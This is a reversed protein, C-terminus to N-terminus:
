GRRREVSHGVKSLSDSRCRMGDGDAGADDRLYADLNTSGVRCRMGDGDAGADRISPFPAREDWKRCRM